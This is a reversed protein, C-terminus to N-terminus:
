TLRVIAELVARPADVHVWHGAGPVIEVGVRHPNREAARAARRRDADDLVPSAGGVLLEVRARGPPAEIPRWLDRAFYDDLLAHIARLDVGYVFTGQPTRKVNMALWQAMDRMVGENELWAVFDERRALERPMRELLRLTGMTLESGRHDPRAGPCSDLILALALDGGKRVLYELAVKGGFSHGLVGEIAGPVHAELAILDAACAALTHPPAFGQSHGHMRLDVLVAGWRPRKEVWQRAITRWNGGTGLIGHLFLMWRSPTVDKPTVLAHHLTPM